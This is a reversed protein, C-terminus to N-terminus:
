ENYKDPHHAFDWFNKEDLGKDTSIPHGFMVRNTIIISDNKLIIGQAKNGWIENVGYSDYSKKEDETLIDGIIVLTNDVNADPYKFDGIKNAEWRYFYCPPTIKIKGSIKYKHNDKIRLEGTGDKNVLELLVNNLKATDTVEVKNITTSNIKENKTCSLITCGFVLVYIINKM